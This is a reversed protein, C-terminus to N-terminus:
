IALSVMVELVVLQNHNKFKTLVLPEKSLKTIISRLQSKHRFRSNSQFQLLPWNSYAQHEVQKLNQQVQM